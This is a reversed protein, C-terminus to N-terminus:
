SVMPFVDKEMSTNPDKKKFLEKSEPYDYDVNWKGKALEIPNNAVLDKWKVKQFFYEGNFLESELYAKGKSLLHEYFTTDDNFEKAMKIMSELAGLYFNEGLPEPGWFEIDYTNHHGEEILGKHKPDWKNICYNMSKKIQPWLDRLWKTNGSIRWERYAKIITGLQGDAAPYEGNAVQRIPLSARFQLFGDAALSENFETQRLSRELKPFLHPISQAYNWVHSCSGPGIGHDDDCGEWGWLRGDTQRLVTPSKLISLNAGVAELVESPLTSSYFANTFRETRERLDNYHLKWYDALTYIDKFKGSYWPKYTELKDKFINETNIEDGKRLDTNPVYWCFKLRITKSEGPKLTFPVFLSAGPSNEAVPSNEVLNGDRINNWTIAKYDGEISRFWTYDVKVNKEEDAFFVFGGEKVKNKESGEQWLLFGNPFEKVSAGKFINNNEDSMRMFNESNFSFVAERIENSSNVFHYEFAGVPLSSNDEDGPIFPSWGTVTVDFPIEKDELKIKAFPFRDLFTNSEFRPYGYNSKFFGRGAHLRDGFRKWGPVQGELVKAINKGKGKVCLAAYMLPENFMDPHNRVSVHSVAGTGEICIMGAGIGGIPYAIYNLYEGSYEGNFERKGISNEVQRRTNITKEKEGTSGWIMGVFFLLLFISLIYNKVFINRTHKKFSM